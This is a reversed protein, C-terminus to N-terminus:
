RRIRELTERVQAATLSPLKAEPVSGEQVIL